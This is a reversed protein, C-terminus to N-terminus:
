RRSITRGCEVNLLYKLMHEIFSIFSPQSTKKKIGESRMKRNMAKSYDSREFTFLSGRLLDLPTDILTREPFCAGTQIRLSLPSLVSDAAKVGTPLTLLPQRQLDPLSAPGRAPGCLRSSNRPSGSIAQRCQPSLVTRLVWALFGSGVETPTRGESLGGAAVGAPRVSIHDRGRRPGEVVRRRRQRRRGRSVGRASESKTRKRTSPARRGGPVRLCTARLTFDFSYHSALTNEM